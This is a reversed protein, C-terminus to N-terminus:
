RLLSVVADAADRAAGPRALSRAAQGMRHLRAPDAMLTRVQAVVAALDWGQEVVVAAAGAAELGRANEEQHNETVNPSPILLSAKGVAAIEALTSSGARCVLLDAIVYALDMRDEYGLLVYRPPPKGIAARVEAEYRPGCIHVVQFTREPDRAVALALENLRAAGLSGGVLVLTPVGDIVGYRGLAEDRSGQSVKPNVPVGVVQKPASGQIRSLTREFTVLVRNSVRACLQNALGPVVNSEHIARPIGLTWAALVTPAMIYGGVGLVAEVKDAKLAARMQWTARLLALLFMVKGVIGGRPYQAARVPRFAYGRQAAVRGELREADGFYLVTHGRARLEDGIALAPYVHGGTGGGALAVVAM